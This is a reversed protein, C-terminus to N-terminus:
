DKPTHFYRWRMHGCLGVIDPFIVAENIGLLNLEERIRAFHEKKIVAKTLNKSYKANRELPVMWPKGDKEGIQHATFVAAQASIRSSVIQSRLIRTASNDFPDGGKLKKDSLFYRAEAHLMWVVADKSNTGIAFWLAVLASYSWDLLRTPLGHHQALALWDWTSDSPIGSVLPHCNRKFENFVLVEINKLEGKPLERGIRPLLKSEEPQGRFLLDCKKRKKFENIFEVYESVNSIPESLTNHMVVHYDTIKNICVCKVGASSKGGRM